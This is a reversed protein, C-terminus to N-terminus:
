RVDCSLGCLFNLRLAGYWWAIFHSYVIRNLLLWQRNQELALLYDFWWIFFCPLCSLHKLNLLWLWRKVLRYWCRLLIWQDLFQFVSLLYEFYCLNVFLILMMIWMIVVIWLLCQLVGLHLSVVVVMIDENAFLYLAIMNLQIALWDISGVINLM